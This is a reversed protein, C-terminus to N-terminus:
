YDRLLYFGLPFSLVYSLVGIAASLSPLMQDVVLFVIAAIPIGLLGSLKMKLEFNAILDFWNVM